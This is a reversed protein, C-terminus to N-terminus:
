ILITFGLFVRNNPINTNHNDFYCYGFRFFAMDELDISFGALPSLTFYKEPSKELGRYNGFVWGGRAGLLVRMNVGEGIQLNGFRKELDLSLMFKKEFYQNIENAGEKIQVKKFYPRMSLNLSAGWHNRLDYVGGGFDIMFDKFNFNMNFNMSGYLDPKGFASSKEQACAGSAFAMVLAVLLFLSRM